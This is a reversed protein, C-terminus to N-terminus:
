LKETWQWFSVFRRDQRHFVGLEFRYFRPSLAPLSSSVECISLWGDQGAYVSQVSIRVIRPRHRVCAHRVENLNHAFFSMRQSLLWEM